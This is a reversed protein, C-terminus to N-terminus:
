PPEINANVFFTNSDLDGCDQIIHRLISPDTTLYSATAAHPSLWHRIIRLATSATSSRIFRRKCFHIYNAPSGFFAPNTIYTNISQLTDILETIEDIFTKCRTFQLKWAPLLAPDSNFEMRYEHHHCELQLIDDKDCSTHLLKFEVMTSLEELYRPTSLEYSPYSEIIQLALSRLRNCQLTSKDIYNQFITETTALGAPLNEAITACFQGICAAATRKMGQFESLYHMKNLKFAWLKPLSNSSKSKRRRLFCFFRLDREIACYGINISAHMPLEAILWLMLFNEIKFNTTWTAHRRQIEDDLTEELPPTEM